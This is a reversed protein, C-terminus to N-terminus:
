IQGRVNLMLHQMFYHGVSKNSQASECVTRGTLGRPPQQGIVQEYFSFQDTFCYM